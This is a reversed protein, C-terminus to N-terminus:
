QQGEFPTGEETIGKAVKERMDKHICQLEHQHRPRMVVNSLKIRMKKLRTQGQYGLSLQKKSLAELQYYRQLGQNRYAITSYQLM